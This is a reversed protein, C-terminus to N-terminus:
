ENEAFRCLCRCRGAATCLYWVTHLCLSTSPLRNSFPGLLVGLAWSGCCWVVLFVGAEAAEVGRSLM